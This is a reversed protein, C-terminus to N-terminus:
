SFKNFGGGRFFNRPVGSIMPTTACRRVGSGFIRLAFIRQFFNEGRNKIILVADEENIIKWLALSDVRLM